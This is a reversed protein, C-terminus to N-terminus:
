SGNKIKRLTYFDKYSQGRVKNRKSFVYTVPDLSASIRIQFNIKRSRSVSPETCMSGLRFFSFITSPSDFSSSSSSKSAPCKFISLSPDIMRCLWSRTDCMMTSLVPSLVGEEAFNNYFLQTKPVEIM